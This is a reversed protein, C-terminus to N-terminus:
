DPSQFYFMHIAGRSPGVPGPEGIFLRGQRKNALITGGFGTAAPGEFPQLADSLDAIDNAGPLFAIRAPNPHDPDSLYDGRRAVGPIGVPVVVVEAM